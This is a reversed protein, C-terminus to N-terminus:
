KRPLLGRMRPGPGRDLVQVATVLDRFDPDAHLALEAATFGCALLDAETCAGDAAYHQMADAMAKVLDLPGRIERPLGAIRIERVPPLAVFRVKGDRFMRDICDDEARSM